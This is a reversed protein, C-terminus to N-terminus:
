GDWGDEDPFIADYIAQSLNDILFEHMAVQEEAPSSHKRFDDWIAQSEADM